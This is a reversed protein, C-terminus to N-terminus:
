PNALKKIKHFAPATWQNDLGALIKLSSCCARTNGQTLDLIDDDSRSDCDMIIRRDYKNPTTICGYWKIVSIYNDNGGRGHSTFKVSTCFRAVIIFTYVTRCLVSSDCFPAQRHRCVIRVLMMALASEAAESVVIAAKVIIIRVLKKLYNQEVADRLPIGIHGRM